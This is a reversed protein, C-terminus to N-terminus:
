GPPFKADPDDGSGRDAHGLAIRGAAARAAQQRGRLRRSRPALALLALLARAAGTSRAGRGSCRPASRAPSRARASCVRGDPLSTRRRRVRRGNRAFSSTGVRATRNGADDQLLARFCGGPQGCSTSRRRGARDPRVPRLVLAGPRGGEAHLRASRGAALRREGQLGLRTTGGAPYRGIQSVYPGFSFSQTTSSSAGSRSAPELAGFPTQGTLTVEVLRPRAAFRGTFPTLLPQTAGFITQRRGGGARPCPRSRRLESRRARAVLSQSFM